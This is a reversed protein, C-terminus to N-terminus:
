RGVARMLREAVATGLDVASRLVKKQLTPRV